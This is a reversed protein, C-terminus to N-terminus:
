LGRDMAENWLSRWYRQDAAFVDLPDRDLDFAAPLVGYRKLERVYQPNARFQPTGFLRGQELDRQARRLGALLKQYDADNTDAFVTGCAGWGGAEVALPGLLLPSFEPRSFNLLVNISFRAVPDDEFVIREYVAVPRGLRKRDARRAEANFPLRLSELNSEHVKNHCGFCRRGLVEGQEQFVRATAMGATQQGAQNRLAGYSGAYAAASEIWLWVTRWEEPSVKVDHHGGRIKELMPSAASGISRPPQNGLGNRGDAVQRHAFLHFYSHSWQPGVDGALAVGGSREPYDHCEVCHRDLIPQIDRRFDLVDPYGAFREIRSPARRTAQLTTRRVDHPTLARDEHCGVCSTTEGPMVSTFSQMRKVSRDEADLAVFFFQRGAPLEFFASGDEEVPVTGVVRELTFTGLWSTLDPGGSFNVPKPLCELVLLKRIDGRRVGDMHRGTYVDALLLTGTASAPATRRPIVRERPRATLPRPEHLEGAGPHTYVPQVRGDRAILVIQNGRAALVYGGALPFPDRVLAGQHLARASAPADPGADPTVVTAIGAHENVGHGPSFSAIVESTGPIPKADIMVINPRQNGYYVMAGTGDPNMTWLHHFEVQSRDVYEWRTYLIRGDPMVWPTNDHETNASVAEIGDGSPNCRYMVGVQTMWCNVWRRCRTSVFLLDDDPLYVAEYDDYPGDTIQRLGTGDSLVEYLHFFDDGPRRASFLVRRGDYHVCPDRVTGGAFDALVRVTGDRPDWVELRGVDPKGNGAYAKSNADDCYYGINAYWHPDDYKLRACFVIGPVGAFPGQLLDAPLPEQAASGCTDGQLLLLIPIWHKM